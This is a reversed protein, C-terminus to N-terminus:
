DNLLFDIINQQRIGNRSINILSDTSIVLKEYNDKIRELPGFERDMTDEHLIYTVQIYLKEEAKTAAFDVEADSMKGIRVTWGRRLLEMFVINELLGGIDNNRYGLTAHRLGLDSLFLKEQTELLKKGKIDYRPVKHIVFASELAKIYTYVTEVSLRRGQSKLFDSINKASFTSGINDMLYHIIRELLEIDRIKHRKVVDKLLISNYMDTLYQFLSSEEWKM